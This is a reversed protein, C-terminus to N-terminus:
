KQQTLPFLRTKGDKLGSSGLSCIGHWAWPRPLFERRFFIQTQCTSKKGFSCFARVSRDVVRFLIHSIYPFIPFEFRFFRKCSKSFFFCAVQRLSSCGSRGFTCRVFTPVVTDFSYIVLLRLLFSFPFPHFNM